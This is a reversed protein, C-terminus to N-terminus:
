PRKREALRGGLWACPLNIAFVAVAYWVPGLDANLAVVIGAASILLGVVGVALAHRMRHAPALRAALWCGAVGFAARYITAIVYPGTEYTIKPPRPFLGAAYAVEDGAVSLAVIAAFGALVAGVSRLWPWRPRVEDSTTM